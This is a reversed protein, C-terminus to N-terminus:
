IRAIWLFNTTIRAIIPMQLNSTTIELYLEASYCYRRCRWIFWPKHFVVVFLMYVGKGSFSISQRVLIKYCFHIHYRIISTQGRYVGSHFYNNGLHHSLEVMLWLSIILKEPYLNKKKKSMNLPVFSLEGFLILSLKKFYQM